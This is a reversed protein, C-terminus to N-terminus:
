LDGTQQRRSTIKSTYGGRLIRDVRHPHAHRALVPGVRVEDGRDCRELYRIDHEIRQLESNLKSLITPIDM